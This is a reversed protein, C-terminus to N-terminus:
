ISRAADPISAMVTLGVGTIWSVISRTCNPSHHLTFPSPIPFVGAERREEGGEGRTGRGEM